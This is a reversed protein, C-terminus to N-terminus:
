IVKTVIDFSVLMKRLVLYPRHNAHIPKYYFIGGNLEGNGMQDKKTKAAILLCFLLLLLLLWFVNRDFKVLRRCSM